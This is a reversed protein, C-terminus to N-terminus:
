MMLLAKKPLEPIDKVHYFSGQGLRAVKKAFIIGRENKDGIYLFSIEINKMRSKKVEKYAISSAKINRFMSQMEIKTEYHFHQNGSQTEMSLSFNDMEEASTNCYLDEESAINPLGDSIIIIQKRNSANGKQLLTRAIKIGDGANTYKGTKIGLLARSIKHLDGSLPCVAEAANSFAVICVQDKNASATKAVGAATLKAYFLKRREKMSESVDICLAIDKSLISAKEFSRIDDFSIEDIHKGKRILRRITHRPSMTRYTDGRMYKRIYSKETIQEQKTSKGTKLFDKKLINNLLIIIAPSQLKYGDGIEDIKIMGKAELGNMKKELLNYDLNDSDIYNGERKKRLFEAHLNKMRTTGRYQQDQFDMLEKTFKTIDEKAESHKKKKEKFPDGYELSQIGFIVEQVIELIIEQPKKISEPQVIIRGPLSLMAAAKLENRSQIRRISRYAQVIEIIALGARVSAGRKVEPHERVKKVLEAVLETVKKDSLQEL